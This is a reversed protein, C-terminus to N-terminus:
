MIWYDQYFEDSLQKQVRDLIKIWAKQVERLIWIWRLRWTWTLKVLQLRLAVEGETPDLSESQNKKEPKMKAKFVVSKRMPLKERNKM